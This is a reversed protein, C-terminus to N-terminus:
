RAGDERVDKGSRRDGDRVGMLAAVREEIFDSWRADGVLQPALTEMHALGMIFVLITTALLEPDIAPDLDGAKQQAMVGGRIQAINGELSRRLLRRVKPHKASAYHIEIALQRLRKFKPSAYMAVIHPLAMAGAPEDPSPPPASQVARRVVEFFLDAKSEFHKYIAGATIGSAAAITPMAVGEFGHDAFLREAAALIRSRTSGNEEPDVAYDHSASRALSNEGAKVGPKALSPTLNRPRPM